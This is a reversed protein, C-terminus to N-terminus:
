TAGNGEEARRWALRALAVLRHAAQGVADTAFGVRTRRAEAAVDPWALGARSLGDATGKSRRGALRSCVEQCALQHQVLLAVHHHIVTALRAHLAHKRCSVQVVHLPALHALTSPPRAQPSHQSNRQPATCVQNPQQASCTNTCASHQQREHRKRGHHLGDGCRAAAALRGQRRLAVEAGVPHLETLTTVSSTRQPNARAHRAGTRTHQESQRAVQM